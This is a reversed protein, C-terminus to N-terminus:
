GTVAQALAEDVVRRLHPFKCARALDRVGSISISKASPYLRNLHCVSAVYFDWAPIDLINAKLKDEEPHHCFVYVDACRTPEGEYKGTSPNWIAAKRISFAIKSATEQHWSQCAASSKVEIRRGQYTLDAADWEVRPREAVAGLATGVIFEAFVSRNRNSLVDSYAWRWFDGITVGGGGPIPQSADLFSTMLAEPLAYSLGVVGKVSVSGVM